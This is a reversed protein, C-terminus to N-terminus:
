DELMEDIHAIAEDGVHGLDDCTSPAPAEIERVQLKPAEPVDYAKRGNRTSLAMLAAGNSPFQQLPNFLGTARWKGLRENHVIKVPRATYPCTLRKYTKEYGDRHSLAKVLAAESDFWQCPDFLGRAKWYLDRPPEGHCEVIFLKGTFPCNMNPRAM